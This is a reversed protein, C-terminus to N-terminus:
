NSINLIINLDVQDPREKFLLKLIELDGCCAVLINQQRIITKINDFASGYKVKNHIFEVISLHGYRVARELIPRIYLDEPFMNYVLENLDLAGMRAAIYLSHTFLEKFLVYTSSEPSSSDKLKSTRERRQYGISCNIEFMLTSYSNTDRTIVM